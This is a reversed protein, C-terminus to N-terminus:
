NRRTVQDFHAAVNAHSPVGDLRVEFGIQAEMVDTLVRANWYVVTITTRDVTLDGKLTLYNSGLDTGRLTGRVEGFAATATLEDGNKQLEFTIPAATGIPLIGRRAPDASCILESMSGSGAACQDVVYTGSWTGAVTPDVSFTETDSLGEARATITVTGRGVARMTDGDFAIVSTDSSTWTAQVYKATGDTYQAWAGLGLSTGSTTIPASGGAIMTGGGTPTITLSAIATAPTPATPLGDTVGHACSAAALILLTIGLSRSRVAM